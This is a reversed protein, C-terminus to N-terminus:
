LKMSSPILNVLSEFQNNGEFFCLADRSLWGLLEKADKYTTLLENFSLKRTNFVPEHHFVRNRVVKIDYIIKRIRKIDRAFNLKAPANPFVEKVYRNKEILWIIKDYDSGMIETWFGFNLEPTLTDSKVSESAKAM